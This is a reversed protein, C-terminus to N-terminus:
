VSRVASYKQKRDDLFASRFEIQALHQRLRREVGRVQLIALRRTHRGRQRRRLAQGPRHDAGALFARDRHRQAAARWRYGNEAASFKTQPYQPFLVLSM